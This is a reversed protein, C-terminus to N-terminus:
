MCHLWSLRCARAKKRTGSYCLRCVLVMPPGNERVCLRDSAAHKGRVEQCLLHSAQEISYPTDWSASQRAEEQGEIYRMILNNDCIRADDKLGTV